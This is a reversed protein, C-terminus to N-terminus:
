SMDSSNMGKEFINTRFQVYYLSTLEFESLEVGCDLLTTVVGRFDRQQICLLNLSKNTPQNNPPQTKHYILGQLNDLALDLKYM